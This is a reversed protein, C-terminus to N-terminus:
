PQTAPPTGRLDDELSELAERLAESFELAGRELTDSLIEASDRLSDQVEEVSAVLSSRVIERRTEELEVRWDGDFRSLHTNFAIRTERADDLVAHTEVLAASENRLVQGLEVRGFAHRDALKRLGRESPAASLERAEALRGADLAEWFRQTVDLPAADLPPCGALPVCAALVLIVRPPAM